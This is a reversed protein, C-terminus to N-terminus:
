AASARDRPTAAGKAVIGGAWAWLLPYLSLGVAIADDVGVLQFAEPSVELSKSLLPLPM